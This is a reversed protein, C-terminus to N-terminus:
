RVLQSLSHRETTDVGCQEALAASGLVALIFERATDLSVLLAVHSTRPQLDMIRWSRLQAFAM